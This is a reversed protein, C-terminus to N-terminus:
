LFPNKVTVGGYDQGDNLDESWLVQCGLQRASAIIMADWFSIKYRIQLDIANLLDDVRPSHLKWQGLDAVIQSARDTPLPSRIKGTVTVYFEQLVQISLRGNENHWLDSVLDRARQHKNAASLDYAYVLVNTDVFQLVNEDNM